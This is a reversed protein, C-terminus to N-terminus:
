AHVYEGGDIASHKSIQRDLGESSEKLLAIRRRNGGVDKNAVVSRGISSPRDAQIEAHLQM